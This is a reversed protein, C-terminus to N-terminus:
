LIVYLKVFHYFLFAFVHVNIKFNINSIADTFYFCYVMIIMNLKSSFSVNIVSILLINLTECFMIISLLKKM